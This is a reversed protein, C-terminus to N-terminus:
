RKMGPQNMLTCRTETTSIRHVGTAYLTRMQECDSRTYFPGAIPQMTWLAILFWSM